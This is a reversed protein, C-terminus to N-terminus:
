LNVYNSLSFETRSDIKKRCQPCTELCGHCDDCTSHGCNFLTSRRDVMCIPCAWDASAEVVMLRQRLQDYWQRLLDRHDESKETVMNDQLQRLQSRLVEVYSTSASLQGLEDILEGVHVQWANKRIAITTATTKARPHIERAQPLASIEESSLTHAGGQFEWRYSALHHESKAKKCHKCPKDRACTAYISLAMASVILTGSVSICVFSVEPLEAYTSCAFSIILLLMAFYICVGPVSFTKSDFLMKRPPPQTCRTEDCVWRSESTEVQTWSGAEKAFLQEIDKLQKQAKSHQTFTSELSSIMGDITRKMQMLNLIDITSVGSYNLIADLGTDGSAQVSHVPCSADQHLFLQAGRCAVDIETIESLCKALKLRANDVGVGEVQVSEYVCVTFVNMLLTKPLVSALQALCSRDSSTVTSQSGDVIIILCHISNRSRICQELEAVDVSEFAAGTGGCNPDIPVDIATMRRGSGIKLQYQSPQRVDASLVEAPQEVDFAASEACWQLKALCRRSTINKCKMTSFVLSTFDGQERFAVDEQTPGAPQLM